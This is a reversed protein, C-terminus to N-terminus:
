VNPDRVAWHLLHFSRKLKRIARVFTAREQESDFARYKFFNVVYITKQEKDINAVKQGNYFIVRVSVDDDRDYADWRFWKCYLLLVSALYNSTTM